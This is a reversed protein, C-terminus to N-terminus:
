WRRESGLEIRGTVPDKWRAYPSRSVASLLAGGFAGAADYFRGWGAEDITLLEGPHQGIGPAEDKVRADIKGRLHLICNRAYCFTSLADETVKELILPIGLAQLLPGFVRAQNGRVQVRVKRELRSALLRAEDDSPRALPDSIGKIGIALLRERAIVSRQIAAVVTDEVCVEVATWLGVTSHFFVTRFSSGEEGQLQSVMFEVKEQEELLLNMGAALESGPEVRSIAIKLFVRFGSAITVARTFLGVNRAEAVVYPVLAGAPELIWNDIEESSESTTM